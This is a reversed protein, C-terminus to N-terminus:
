PAFTYEARMSEPQSGSRPSGRKSASRLSGFFLAGSGQAMGQSAQVFMGESFVSCRLSAALMNVLMLPIEERTSWGSWEVRKRRM